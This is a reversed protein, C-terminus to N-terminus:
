SQIVKSNLSGNQKKLFNNRLKNITTKPSSNGFYDDQYKKKLCDIVIKSQIDKSSSNKLLLFNKNTSKISDAEFFSDATFTDDKLSKLKVFLNSIENYIIEKKNLRPFTKKKPQLSAIKAKEKNIFTHRPKTGINMSSENLKKIKILYSATENM